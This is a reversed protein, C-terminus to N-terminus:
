AGVLDHFFEAEASHSFDVAGNPGVVLKAFLDGDFQHTRPLVGTEDQVSEPVLPLNERAKIMGVDCAQQVASCGFFAHRIKHHFQDFAPANVLKTVCVVEFDVLAQLKEKWDTGGDLVRVLSQDNM